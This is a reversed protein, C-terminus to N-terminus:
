ILRLLIKTFVGLSGESGVLVDKLNYGAVDKMSKGGTVVVDGNPLVLEIGMVYNKTVGYKLGRLGGANEAVNGGVTCISASGPDPPYLLGLAEVSAQFQATIVGPEVWATLNQEDIELIKNWHNMLLVVSNEVPISGGSLGSGSGRPVIAFGDENALKLITSIQETSRPILIAEPAKSLLQTGDYSYAIKDEPSDLFNERGVTDRLKSLTRQPLM